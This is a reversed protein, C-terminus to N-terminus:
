SQRLVAEVDIHIDIRDAVIAVGDAKGDFTVGFDRRNISALASFGARTGGWPDPTTGDFRVTLPVDRTVGKLTLKGDLIFQDGDSRIGSTQYTMEPFRETDLFDASRLHQDRADNGTSISALDVTVSAASKLPDETTTIEGRVKDFKGHVKTVILHRVTFGVYSHDSDIDWVGTRYGPLDLGTPAPVAPSAM